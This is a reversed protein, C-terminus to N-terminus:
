GGNSTQVTGTSRKESTTYIQYVTAKSVGNMVGTQTAIEVSKTRSTHFHNRDTNREHTGYLFNYHVLAKKQATAAVHESVRM